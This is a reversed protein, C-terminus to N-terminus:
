LDTESLSTEDAVFDADPLLGDRKCAYTMVEIEVSLDLLDGAFLSDYQRGFASQIHNLHELM